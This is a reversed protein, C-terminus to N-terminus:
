PGKVGMVQELSRDICEKAQSHTREKSRREPPNGPDCIFVTNHGSGIACSEGKIECVFCGREGNSRILNQVDARAPADCTAIPAIVISKEKKGTRKNFWEVGDTGLSQLSKVFSMFFSNMKPNKKRTYYIGSVFQFNRRNKLPINCIQSQIMCIHSRSSKKLPTDDLNWLLCVDFDNKLVENKFISYQSGSTIGSVYQNSLITDNKHALLLNGLNRVEFLNKIMLRLDFQFFEDNIETSNCNECTMIKKTVSWEGLSYSCSQCIRDKQVLKDTEAFLTNLLKLLHYKSKPLKNPKPMHKQMTKLIDDLTKKATRNKIYIQLVDVVAEGVTTDSNEYLLEKYWLEEIYGEGANQVLMEDEYDSQNEDSDESDSSSSSEKIRSKTRNQFIQDEFFVINALPEHQIPM